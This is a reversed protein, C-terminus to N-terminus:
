RHNYLSIAGLPTAQLDRPTGRLVDALLDFHGAISRGTSEEGEALVSAIFTGKLGKGDLTSVRFRNSESSM